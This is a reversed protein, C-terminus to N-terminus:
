GNRTAPERIPSFRWIACGPIRPSCPGRCPRPSCRSTSRYGSCPVPEPSSTLWHEDHDGDTQCWGTVVGAGWLGPAPEAGTSGTVWFLVPQGAAFRERYRSITWSRITRNGDSVFRTLDWMKPNCKLLWAGLDFAAPSTM